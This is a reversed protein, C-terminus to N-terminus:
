RTRLEAVGASAEALAGPTPLMGGGLEAALFATSMARIWALAEHQGAVPEDLRCILKGLYHDAGEVVLAHQGGPEAREWSLLHQQWDTVFRGDTDETGTTMLVPGRMTNWSDAVIVDFMEGPPSVAITAVPEPGLWGHRQGDEDVADAGAMMQATFAGFSHGAAILTDQDARAVLEPFADLADLLLSFDDLRSQILGIEGMKLSALIASVTGGSDAHDPALVVYGHSVWHHILADYQDKDSAFGHSFLMLPFPGDAEPWTARATLTRGDAHTLMVSEGAVPTWPGPTEGTLRARGPLEGRLFSRLVRATLGPRELALVHGAGDVKIVQVSEANVLQEEFRYALEVPLQPNDEGWLVLTPAMVQELVPVPDDVTYDRLREMESPRNGERRFGDHFRTLMEDTVLADDIIMWTLFKEYLFRPVLRIATDAWGPVEGGARSNERKQGGSNILVLRMVRDPYRAAFNFAMNGGLSSGVLHVRELGLHDLLGTMLQLSRPMTYDDSPDAGTLGHSTMDFRILTYEDSLEAVVADWQQMTFFHSHVLLVPPGQGEVQYRLRVGDIEATEPAGQPYHRELYDAESLDRGGWLVVLVALVLAALLGALCRGIWRLM